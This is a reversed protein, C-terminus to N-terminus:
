ETDEIDIVAELVNEVDQELNEDSVNEASDFTLVLNYKETLFRQRYMYDATTAVKNLMKANMGAGVVIGLVPVAQALKNKTMKVGLAQYIKRILSTVASKNLQDWTNRRAIDGILKNMALFASQKQANSGGSLAMSLVSSMFVKENPYTTDYGYYTATEAIVRSAMTLVAAVDSAIASATLAAGPLAGVGGIGVGALAGTTGGTTAFGVAAGEATAVATYGLDLRPKVKLIQKLELEAIDELSDLLVGKKEYKKLVASETVTAAGTDSLFNLVGEVSEKLTTGLHEVGPVETAKEKASTAFESAKDKAKELSTPLKPTKDKKAQWKIIDDWNQRDFKNMASIDVNALSM